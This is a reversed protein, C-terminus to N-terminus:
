AYATEAQRSTMKLRAPHFPTSFRIDFTDRFLCFTGASSRTTDRLGQVTAHDSQDSRAMM